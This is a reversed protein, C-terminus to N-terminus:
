PTALAGAAWRVTVGAKFFAAKLKQLKLFAELTKNERANILFLSSEGNNFRTEEGKQLAAFNFYAKEQLSILNQLTALENFYRKVSTEIKLQTQQQQLETDLIKIKAKRFEGRGQSLRLPIGMRFGYQFNNEFLPGTATKLVNYGKGLQNYTFNLSPLLEQFKLKKEVALADLKFPYLLLEPHSRRALNLLSDLVPLQVQGTQINDLRDAPLVTEPLDFPRNDERWLYQSLELGTNLFGLRAENQMLEFSQLQTLAEITDIAPRDGLRFATRVMQLRQRNVEVTQQLIRWEQYQWTWNWYSKLADLLLDNLVKRQEVPSADRFIKASQLAARRKDMLLNKLLPVTFGAYSTEGKTETPDTQTGSLNELGVRLEAGFWTPIRIEPRNYNYYDIGDFTKKATENELVPDFLGRAITLEAKASEVLLAAQKAVPHYRRVIELVQSASLYRTTDQALGFVPLLLLLPLLVAPRM